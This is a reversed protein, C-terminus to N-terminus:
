QAVKLTLWEQTFFKSEAAMAAYDRGDLKLYALFSSETKHGTCNMIQYVELDRSLYANTAFSRRATHTTVQTWKDVLQGNVVCTGLEAAQAIRKLADNFKQNSLVHPQEPYKAWIVRVAPHVPLHIIDGTKTSRYRLIEKKNEIIVNAPIIQAWDSHRAGVFCARIFIDKHILDEKSLKDPGLDYIKRLEVTNLFVSEPSKFIIKWSKKRYDPSVPINRDDAERLIARIQKLYNGRTNGAHGRDMLWKDFNHYFKIDMQLFSFRASIGKEQCYSKVLNLTQKKQRKTAKNIPEGDKNKTTDILEQWTKWVEALETLRETAEQAEDRMRSKIFDKLDKRSLTLSNVRENLFEEACEELFDQHMAIHDLKARGKKKHWDSHSCHLGTSYMFKRGPFRSDFVWFVLVPDGSGQQRLTFSFNKM